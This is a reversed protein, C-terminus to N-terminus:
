QLKKIVFGRRKQLNNIILLVKQLNGVHINEKNKRNKNQPVTVELLKIDGRTLGFVSTFSKVSAHINKFIWTKNVVQQIVVM